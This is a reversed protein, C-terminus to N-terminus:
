RVALREQGSLEKDLPMSYLRDEMIEAQEPLRIVTEFVKASGKTLVQGSKFLLKYSIQLVGPSLGALPGSRPVQKESNM